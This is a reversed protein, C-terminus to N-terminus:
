FWVAIVLKKFRQAVVTSFIERNILKLAAFKDDTKRTARKQCHVENIGRCKIKNVGPSRLLDSTSQQCIESVLKIM